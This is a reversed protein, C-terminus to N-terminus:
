GQLAAAEERDSELVRKYVRATFEPRSHGAYESAKWMDMGNKIWRTIAAHRVDYFRM